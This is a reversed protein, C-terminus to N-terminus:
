FFKNIQIRNDPLDKLSYKFKNERATKWHSQSMKWHSSLLYSLSIMDYWISPIELKFLFFFVFLKSWFYTYFRYVFLFFVNYGGALCSSIRIKVTSPSFMHPWRKSFICLNKRNHFIFLRADFHSIM